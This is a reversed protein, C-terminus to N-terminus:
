NKREKGTQKKKKVRGSKARETQKNERRRETGGGLSSLEFVQPFALAIPGAIAALAAASSASARHEQHSISRDM